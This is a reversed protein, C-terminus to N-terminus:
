ACTRTARALAYVGRVPKTPSRRATPRPSRSCRSSAKVVELTGDKSGDNIVIIEFEPYNLQLLSRVSSVITGEENYAPM